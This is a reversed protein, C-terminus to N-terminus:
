IHVSSEEVIAVVLEAAKVLETIAIRESTTHMREYGIGLNVTPIGYSCFINADSGGGSELLRPHRGIKRVAQMAMKVVQDEESLRYAPYAVEVKVDCHTGWRQAAEHFCKEMVNIQQTLKEEKLSRAEALIRVKDCVINTAQGGEFRGINATTERDIRGLPMKVIAESAVRIASIGEEPNVGAHAARGYVTVDLKAQSPAAVVIDGVPGDSDLAFGYDARILRPSLAKAGVLGSEEGVTFVLKIDGCLIGRERIVTLGELIAAIGAKDDSGLITSGDSVVYGERIQPKVGRGPAVTDMHATFLLSPLHPAKGKLCAILNGAGHGTEQASDDEMVELGMKQLLHHLVDCIQREQKTESDIQVLQLFRNVLREADVM